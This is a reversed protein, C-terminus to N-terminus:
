WLQGGVEPGGSLTLSVDPHESFVVVGEDNVPGPATADSCAGALLAAIGLTVLRFRM